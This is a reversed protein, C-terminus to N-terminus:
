KTESSNPKSISISLFRFGHSNSTFREGDNFQSLGKSTLNFDAINDSKSDRTPMGATSGTRLGDVTVVNGILGVSCSFIFNELTLVTKVFTLKNLRFKNM